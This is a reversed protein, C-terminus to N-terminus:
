GFRCIADGQFRELSSKGSSLEQNTHGHHVCFYFYYFWLSIMVAEIGRDSLLTPNHPWFTLFLDNKAM